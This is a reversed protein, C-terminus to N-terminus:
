VMLPHEDLAEVLDTRHSGYIVIGVIRLLHLTHAEYLILIPLLILDRDGISDRLLMLTDSLDHARLITQLRQLKLALLLDEGIRM